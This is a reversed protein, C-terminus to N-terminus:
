AAASLIKDAIANGTMGIFAAENIYLRSGIEKGDLEGKRVWSRVTREDPADAPDFYREIFTKALILKM